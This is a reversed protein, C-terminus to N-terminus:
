VHRAFGDTLFGHWVGRADVSPTLTPAGDPGSLTWTAGDANRQPDIPASLAVPSDWPWFHVWKVRGDADRSYCFQGRELAAACFVFPRGVLRRTVSDSPATM